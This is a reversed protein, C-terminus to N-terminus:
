PDAPKRGLEKRGASWGEDCGGKEPFSTQGECCGNKKLVGITRDDRSLTYKPLM